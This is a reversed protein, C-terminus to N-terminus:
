LAGVAFNQPPFLLFLPILSGTGEPCRRPIYLKHRRWGEWFREEPTQPHIRKIQFSYMGLHRLDDGAGEPQWGDM